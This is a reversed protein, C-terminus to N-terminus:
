NYLHSIPSAPKLYSSLETYPVAVEIIGFVYPAIHYINYVFILETKTFCFAEPIFVEELLINNLEEESDLRMADVLYKRIIKVIDKEKLPNIIDNLTFARGLVISYHVFDKYYEGHAGGTYYSSNRIMSIVRGDAYEIGANCIFEWDMMHKMESEEVFAYEDNFMNHFSKALSQLDNQTNGTYHDGFFFKGFTKKLKEPNKCNTAEVPEPYRINISCIPGDNNGSLQHTTEYTQESFDLDIVQTPYLEFDMKKSNASNTWNGSFVFDSSFQGDFFGTTQYEARQEESLYLKGNGKLSGNLLITKGYKTYFYYGNFETENKYLFMEIDHKDDITGQLHIAFYDSEPTSTYSPSDIDSQEDIDFVNVDSDKSGSNQCALFCLISFLSITKFIINKM